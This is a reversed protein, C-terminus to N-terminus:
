GFVRDFLEPTLDAPENRSITAVKLIFKGESEEPSLGLLEQILNAETYVKRPEFEIEEDKKRGIFRERESEAVQEIQIAAHERKLSENEVGRGQEGAPRAEGGGPAPGTGAAGRRRRWRASALPSWS